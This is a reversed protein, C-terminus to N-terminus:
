RSVDDVPLFANKEPVAARNANLALGQVHEVVKHVLCWTQDGPLFQQFRRTTEHLVTVETGGPAPLGEIPLDHGLGGTKDVVQRCANEALPDFIEDVHAGQQRHGLNVQTRHTGGDEVLPALGHQAQHNLLAQGARWAGAVLLQRGPQMDLRDLAVSFREILRQPYDFFFQGECRRTM